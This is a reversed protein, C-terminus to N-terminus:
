VYKCGECNENTAPYGTITCYDGPEDGDLYGNCHMPIDGDFKIGERYEAFKCTNDLM